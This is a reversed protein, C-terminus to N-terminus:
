KILASIQKFCDDKCTLLFSFLISQTNTITINKLSLEKLANKHNNKNVSSCSDEIVFVNFGRDKADLSSERICIHSEIGFFIINQKAEIEKCFLSEGFASFSLKEIVKTNVNVVSKGLGQPYQELIISDINLIKSAELLLNANKLLKEKKHMINYLKEQIDVCVFISSSSDLMPKTKLLNM